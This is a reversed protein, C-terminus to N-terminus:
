IKIQSINYFSKHYYLLGGKFIVGIKTVNKNTDSMKQYGDMKTPFVIKQTLVIVNM